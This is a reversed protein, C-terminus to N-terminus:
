ATAEKIWIEIHDQMRWKEVTYTGTWRNAVSYLKRAEDAEDLEFEVVKWAGEAEHVCERVHGWGKRKTPPKSGDRIRM